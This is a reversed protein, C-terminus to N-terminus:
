VKDNDLFFYVKEFKNQNIFNIAKDILITSNLILFTNSKIEKFLTLYSLFDM